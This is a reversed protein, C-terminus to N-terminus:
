RHARRRVGIAAVGSALLLTASAPEPVTLATSALGSSERPALLPLALPQAGVSPHFSRTDLNNKRTREELTRMARRIWKFHAAVNVHGSVDGYDSDITGDIPATGYSHVGALEFGNNNRIFLGGGSDGPAILAELDLPTSSGFSSDAADTPNDFDVELIRNNEERNDIVNQGARYDLGLVSGTAGDGGLGFGAFFATEGVPNRTRSLKVPKGKKIKRNVKLVALDFAADEGTFEETGDYRPHILIGEVKYRSNGLKFRASLATDVVHAATLIFDRGILTGSGFGDPTIVQGVSKRLFQRAALDKYDSETVDDRFVGAFAPATATLCALAAGAIWLRANSIQGM